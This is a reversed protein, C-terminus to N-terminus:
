EKKYSKIKALVDNISNIIDENKFRIEKLGRLTFVKRRYEDIERQSSSEHIEGDIEIVLKLEHCFFDVIFGEIVQQRRFKLGYLKKNRVQEWLISEAETMNKRLARAQKKKYEEVRQLLVVGSSMDSMCCCGKKEKKKGERVPATSLWGFHSPHGFAPTLNYLLVMVMDRM